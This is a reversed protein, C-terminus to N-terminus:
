NRLKVRSSLVPTVQRGNPLKPDAYEIQLNITVIRNASDYLFVQASANSYRVYNALVRCSVSNYATIPGVENADRCRILQRTNGAAGVLAYHVWEDVAADSGWCTEPQATPVGHCTATYGRAVQFNLQNAGSGLVTMGGNAGSVRAERLERVMVDFARRAEQQVQIYAGTSFYSAQGTLFTSVLGGGVIFLLVTVVMMEVLTFGFSKM